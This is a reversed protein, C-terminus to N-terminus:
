RTRDSLEGESDTWSAPMKEEARSRSTESRGFCHVFFKRTYMASSKETPSAHRTLSASEHSGSRPFVVAVNTSNQRTQLASYRTFSM